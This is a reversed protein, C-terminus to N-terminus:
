IRAMVYWWTFGQNPSLTSKLCCYGIVSLTGKLKVVSRQPFCKILFFFFLKETQIRFESVIEASFVAGLHNWSDHLRALLILPLVVTLSLGLVM